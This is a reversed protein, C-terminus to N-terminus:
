NQFREGVYEWLPGEFDTKMVKCQPTQFIPTDTLDPNKLFNNGYM